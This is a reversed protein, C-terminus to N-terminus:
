SYMRRGTNVEAPRGSKRLVREMSDLVWFDMGPAGLVDVAVPLYERVGTIRSHYPIEGIPVVVDPCRLIPPLFLEDTATQHSPSGAAEDRYHPEVPSIPSVVLSRRNRFVRGLLWTRYVEPRRLGETHQEPSVAAGSSWRKEVFPIVYPKHGFRQSHEARFEDSSHYFSYYYTHVIVDRLYEEIDPSAGDPASIWWAKQISLITVPTNLHGSLDSVFSSIIDMQGPVSFPLHDTLYVIEVPSSGAAGVLAGDAGPVWASLVRRVVELSRAFVCPTDFQLFTPVMGGLPVAGHSPRFQFVGNALAPRRGSGSTDTGLACDLWGYSAVAAASGSSSGAPSQYGDGRPNFAAQFDVADPPEERAAMSSLKTLGVIHHGGDVLRQVVGASEQAPPSLRYYSANCLSTKM